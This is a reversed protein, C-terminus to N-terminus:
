QRETGDLMRRRYHEDPRTEIRQSSRADLYVPGGVSLAGEVVSAVKVCMETMALAQDPSPALVFVGHNRLYVVRPPQGERDTFQQVQSRVERALPLGPDVYPVLLQREGLMVIQDPFVAGAVLAEAAVSCLLRNVAIPHTHLICQADTADLLVSHLLAEVSPRRGSSGQLVCTRYVETVTADDATSDDLLARIPARDVLLLDDTGLTALSCGSAKIWMADGDARHSINGEAALALHRGPEGVIHSTAIVSSPISM